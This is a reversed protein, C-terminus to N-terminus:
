EIFDEDEDEDEGSWADIYMGQMYRMISKTKEIREKNMRNREKKKCDRCGYTEEGRGPDNWVDEDPLDEGEISITQAIYRKLDNIRCTKTEKCKHCVFDSIIKNKCTSRISGPIYDKFATSLQQDIGDLDKEYAELIPRKLYNLKM